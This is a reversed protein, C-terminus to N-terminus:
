LLPKHITCFFVMLITFNVTAVTFVVPSVMLFIGPVTHARDFRLVGSQPISQPPGFHRGVEGWGVRGLWNPARGQWMIRYAAPIKRLARHAGFSVSGNLSTVQSLTIYLGGHTFAPAHLDVEICSLSQRQSKNVMM